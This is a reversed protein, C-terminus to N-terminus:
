FKQLFSNYILKILKYFSFNIKKLNLIKHFYDLTFTKIEKKACDTVYGIQQMDFLSDTSAGEGNSSRSQYYLSDGNKNSIAVDFLKISKCNFGQIKDLNKKSLDFCFIKFKEKKYIDLIAKTYHGQHAGVDFFIIEKNENNLKEFYKSSLLKKLINLEGNTQIDPNCDNDHFAIISKAFNYVKKSM